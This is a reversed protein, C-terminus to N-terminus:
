NPLPTLGGSDQPGATREISASQQGKRDAARLVSLPHQLHLSVHTRSVRNLRRTPGTHRITRIVYAEAALAEM